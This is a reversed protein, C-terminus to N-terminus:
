EKHGCMYCCCYWIPSMVIVVNERVCFLIIIIIIIIDVVVIIIIIFVLGATIRIINFFIESLAKIDQKCKTATFLVDLFVYHFCWATSM